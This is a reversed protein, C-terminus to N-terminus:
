KTFERAKIQKMNKALDRELETFDMLKKKNADIASKRMENFRETAEKLTKGEAVEQAIVNVINEKYEIIGGSIMYFYEDENTVRKIFGENVGVVIPTHNELIGLQGNDGDIIVYEVDGDFYTGKPNVIILKM